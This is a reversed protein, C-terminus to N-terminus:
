DGEAFRCPGQGALRDPEPPRWGRSTVTKIEWVNCPEAFPAFQEDTRRAGLREAVRRSRGNAPHIVSIVRDVPLERFAWEVAAGAAETAYGQGCADPMLAWAIELGPWGEPRLAGVRGVFRGSAKEEVVFMGFGRLHWHGILFAIEAWAEAFGYPRGRRTIFRATAPDSLLKSYPELDEPRWGRLVLRLTELSPARCETCSQAPTGAIPGSGARPTM